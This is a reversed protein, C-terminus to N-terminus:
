RRVHSGCGSAWPGGCGCARSGRKCALDMATPRDDGLVRFKTCKQVEGYELRHLVENFDGTCIGRRSVNSLRHERKCMNPGKFVPNCFCLSLFFM